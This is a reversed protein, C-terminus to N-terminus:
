AKIGHDVEQAYGSQEATDPLQNDTNYPVTKGEIKDDTGLYPEEEASIAKLVLTRDGKHDLRLAQKRREQFEDAKFPPLMRM